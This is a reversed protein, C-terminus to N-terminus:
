QIWKIRYTGVTIKTYRPVVPTQHVGWKNGNAKFGSGKTMQIVYAPAKFFFLFPNYRRVHLTLVWNCDPVTLFAAGVGIDVSDANKAAKRETVAEGDNTVEFKGGIRYFDSANRLCARIVLIIYLIILFIILCFLWLPLPYCFLTKDVKASTQLSPTDLGLKNLEDQYPVDFSASVTLQTDITKFGPKLLSNGKWSFKGAKLTSTEDQTTAPLHPHFAFHKDAATVEDIRIRDYVPNPTWTIGLELQGDIDLTPDIAFDAPQIKRTVLAQFKDLLIANKRQSFWDSLAAEHTIVVHNFNFTKPFVSRVKELDKGAGPLQLAFVYVDNGAQETAFRRAVGNWDEKGKRANSPDHQFDTIIFVFKLTSRGIQKMDTGLYHLMNDLDTWKFYKEIEFQTTPKDYIHKAYDILNQTTERNISGASGVENTAEGGFKILSVYDGEQLSRFFAELAPVVVPRYKSMTGSVDIAFIYDAKQASLEDGFKAMLQPYDAKLADLSEPQAFLSLAFAFLLLPVILLKKM